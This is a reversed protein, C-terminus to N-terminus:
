KDNGGNQKLARAIESLQARHGELATLFRNREEIRVEREAEMVKQFMARSEALETIFRNREERRENQQDQWANVVFPWVNKAFFISIAALIITPLGYRGFFELWDM